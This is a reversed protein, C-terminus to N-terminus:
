GLELYPYTAPIQSDLLSVKPEMFAHFKTVLPSGTLEELLVRSYQIIVSFTRIINLAFLLNFLYHRLAHIQVPM